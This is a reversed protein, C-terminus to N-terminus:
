HLGGKLVEGISKGFWREVWPESKLWDEDCDECIFDNKGVFKIKKRLNFVDDFTIIDGCLYCNCGTRKGFARSTLIENGYGTIVDLNRQHRGKGHLTTSPRSFELSDREKEERKDELALPSESKKHYSHVPFDQFYSRHEEKKGEIKRTVPSDFDGKHKSPIVFKYHVDEPLAMVKEYKIGNRM